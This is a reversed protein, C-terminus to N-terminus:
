KGGVKDWHKSCLYLLSSAPRARETYEAAMLMSKIRVLLQKEFNEDTIEWKRTLVEQLSVSFESFMCQLSLRHKMTSFVKCMLNHNSSSPSPAGTPGIFLLFFFFDDTPSRIADVDLTAKLISVYYCLNLEDGLMQHLMLIVFCVSCRHKGAHFHALALNGHPM